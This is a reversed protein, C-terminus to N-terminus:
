ITRPGLWMNYDLTEPIWEPSLNSKGQWYFKWNFGSHMGVTAKLPWGLLGNEVVKKIPKVETRFGYFDGEFRFWTNIRFIRGNMKIAEVVKQGEAITRTMPKECWIDKGARAAAISMPGHWHPPSAIHVIDIDDRDLLDRFDKYTDVDGDVMELAQKLHVDDVDCIALLRSDPNINNLHEKGMGGVGIVGKTLQDSPPTYGDGGLVFRPVITFASAALISNKIFKRRNIKQQYKM